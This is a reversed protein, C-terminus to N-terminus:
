RQLIVQLVAWLAGLTAALLALRALREIIYRVRGNHCIHVALSCYSLSDKSLSFLASAVFHRRYPSFAYERALLMFWYCSYSFRVM